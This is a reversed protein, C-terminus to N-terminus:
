ASISFGVIAHNAWDQKSQARLGRDIELVKMRSALTTPKLGLIAAAGNAGYVKGNSQKLAANINERDRARCQQENLVPSGADLTSSVEVTPTTAGPLHLELREPSSLIVAREIVNQLERINGPWDYSQLAHIQESTLQCSSQKLRQCSLEVFHAAIHSIDERRERLAPVQIPVVNLRYYLDERFSGDRVQEALNRNTAAIIRVDTKRLREEGIRQYEGEQIARLLKCQLELPIEGVEDLLLTGGDASQFHGVRDRTAGTFAGKVHGFFESEFLEKPIAGCNVRIFPRNQRPSQEHIANAILEKGTGSEGLILVNADTPAVMAVHKLTKHIPASSGIIAGSKSTITTSRHSDFLVDASDPNLNGIFDPRHTHPLTSLQSAM